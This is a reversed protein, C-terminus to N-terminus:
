KTKDANTDNGKGIRQRSLQIIEAGWSVAAIADNGRPAHDAACASTMGALIISSTIALLEVDSM